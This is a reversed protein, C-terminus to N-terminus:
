RVRARLAKLRPEAAVNELVTSAERDLRRRWSPYQDVAGPLNPQDPLGLVDELPIVALASSSMSVFQVAVDVARHAEDPAPPPGAALGASALARWIKKRDHRRKKREGAARPVMGLAARTDIDAGKWWGAVTPLDHTSTMAAANRRWAAPPRFGREDQNFWLVDMGFMGVALMRDRFDPPVTGLDEGIIIARHRHSELAILRLLDDFPYSLYAGETPPAGQPILWLRKLGMAHDIRLGGAHHLAARLMVLFPEFGGAVLASPSYSTLAWDQGLPNFADPPAGISLGFLIDRQQAWADSGDRDIGVALDAILGIRMGDDRAQAQATAFSRNAIWQLFAHYEITQPETAAFSAVETGNPNRWAAPWRSWSWLPEKAALWRRHLAEFLAHRRLRAGGQHLFSDFDSRLASGRNERMLQEFLRVFLAYKRRAAAPWDILIASELPQPDSCDNVEAVVREQGFADAPDAFLPNLFLRSSPSYPAYRRPDAPFLSHVPSLAIADARWQRASSILVKLATTDGIGGDGQRRLGYLQVALAWLRADSVLDDVTFCRHPAVAVTIETDGFRLRHYGPRDVAPIVLHDDSARLTVDCRDGDEFVITAACEQHRPGALVAQEGVMATIMPPLRHASDTATLRARSSVYDSKTACPYGLAGLIARLSEITVRHPRAGADVWDNAIGALTALERLEADDV